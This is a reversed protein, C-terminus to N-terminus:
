LAAPNSDFEIRYLFQPSALITKVVHKIANEPTEGLTVAEGALAVLRDSEATLLPRRWARAGFANVITRTCADTPATPACTLIKQKLPASAFVMEGISDATNFYQEYRADNITFAEATNDFEG